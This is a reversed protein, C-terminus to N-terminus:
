QLVFSAEKLFVLCKGPSHSVTSPLIQGDEGCETATPDIMGHFVGDGFCQGSLLPSFLTRVFFLLSLVFRQM